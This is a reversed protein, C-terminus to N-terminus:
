PNVYGGAGARSLSVAGVWSCVSERRENGENMPCRVCLVSQDGGRRKKGGVPGRLNGSARNAGDVDGTKNDGATVGGAKKKAADPPDSGKGVKKEARGM